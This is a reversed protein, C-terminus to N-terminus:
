KWARGGVDMAGCLSLLTLWGGNKKGSTPDWRILFARNGRLLATPGLVQLDYFVPLRKDFAVPVGKAIVRLSCHETKTGEGVVLANVWCRLRPHNLSQLRPQLATGSLSCDVWHKGSHIELDHVIKNIMNENNILM